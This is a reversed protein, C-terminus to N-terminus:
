QVIKALIFITAFLVIVFWSVYDKLAFVIPDDHMNGRHAIFWVRSIWFLMLPCALWIITPTSYLAATHSDQIYLALVVVASYGASGGFSSVMELDQAEYGRGRLL